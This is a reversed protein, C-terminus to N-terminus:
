AVQAYAMDLVRHGDIIQGWRREDFSQTHRFPETHDVYDAVANVFGWATGKFKQIDEANLCQVINKRALEITRRQRDTADVTIPFINMIANAADAETFKTNALQEAQKNLNEMYVEALELTERAQALKTAMDGIHPTSWKRSATDLAFNLTNNCVVRVPTMCVKISGFGDHSNTFCIYPEVEDGLITHTPMKALLWIQKGGRLSGATEYKVEEGILNDTFEFAEANQVIQYRNGVIGLVKNDSSRTNAFYNEIQQGADDFIPKKDITWDLGALRIADASTPAEEVRTGLGHWPVERAYMMTEVNATM